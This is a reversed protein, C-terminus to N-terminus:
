MALKRALNAVGAPNFKRHQRRWGEREWKAPELIHTEDVSCVLDPILGTGVLARMTGDCAIREGIDSTGHDECPLGVEVWHIGSPYAASRVARKATAVDGAVEIATEEATLRSLHDVHWTAIWRALQPTEGKPPTFARGLDDYDDRLVGVIFWMLDAAQRRATAAKENLNTGVAIMGHKQKGKEGDGQESSSLAEELDAWSDAIFKLDARMYDSCADCLWSHNTRRPGGKEQPRCGDGRACLLPYEHASM